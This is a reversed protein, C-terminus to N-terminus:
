WFKVLADDSSQEIGVYWSTVLFSSSITIPGFVIWEFKTKQLVPLGKGLSEQHPFMIQWFLTAGILM